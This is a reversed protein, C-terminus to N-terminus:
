QKSSPLLTCYENLLELVHPGKPAARWQEYLLGAAIRLELREGVSLAAYSDIADKWDSAASSPVVRGAGAKLLSTWPTTDTCIVPCSASLAEAIVHGFNEGATPMLMVDYSAFRTPVEEPLVAGMFRVTVSPSVDAAAQRCAQAYRADEEDGYIDLDVFDSTSKLAELVVLLGKKPVIRGFFFANLTPSTDQRTPATARAPLSTENERVLVVAEKGWVRRIDEAELISSAHWVLRRHLRLVKYIRIFLTKKWSRIALAGVSFEGRPALLRISAMPFAARWMLQPLVSFLPSFFSNFYLVSPNERRLAAFGRLVGVLRNTSMYFVSASGRRVWTNSMVPLPITAGLDRDSTLVLMRVNSPAERVLADLTRIPGGGLYAPPFMPAFVAVAM